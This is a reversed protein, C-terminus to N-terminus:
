ERVRVTAKDQLDLLAAPSLDARSTRKEKTITAPGVREFSFRTSLSIAQPVTEAFATTTRWPRLAAPQTQKRLWEAEQSKQHRGCDIYALRAISDSIVPMNVYAKLPLPVLVQYACFFSKSGFSLFGSSRSIRSRAFRDM